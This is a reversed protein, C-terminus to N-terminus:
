RVHAPIAYKTPGTALRNFRTWSAREIIQAPAILGGSTPQTDESGKAVSGVFGHLIVHWDRSLIRRGELVAHTRCRLRQVTGGEAARHQMVIASVLRLRWIVMLNDIPRRRTLFLWAHEPRCIVWWRLGDQLLRSFRYLVPLVLIKTTFVM